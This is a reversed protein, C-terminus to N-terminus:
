SHPPFPSPLKVSAEQLRKRANERADDPFRDAFTVAVFYEATIEPHGAQILAKFGESPQKRRAWLLLANFPGHRGVFQRTRAAAVNRGHKRSLVINEYASIGEWVARGLPDSPDDHMQGQLEFLRREAAVAIEENGRERANKILNRAEEVTVCKRALEDPRVNVERDFQPTLDTVSVARAGPAWPQQSRV